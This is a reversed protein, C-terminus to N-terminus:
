NKGTIIFGIGIVRPRHYKYGFYSVFVILSIQAIDNLIAFLGSETSSLRFQRELITLASNTYAKVSFDCVRILSFCLM